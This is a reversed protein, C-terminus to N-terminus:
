LKILARSVASISLKWITRFSKSIAHTDDISNVSAFRAAEPM